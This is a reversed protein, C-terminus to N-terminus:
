QRRQGDARLRDGTGRNEWQGPNQRRHGGGTRGADPLRGDVGHQGRYVGHCFRRFGPEPLHIMGMGPQVDATALTLTGGTITIAGSGLSNAAQAVLEGQQVTIDGAWGTNDLNLTLRGEGRKALTGSAIKGTGGSVFEYDSGAANNVTISAPTVEGSLTVTGAGATNFVLNQGAATDLSGAIGWQAGTTSDSWTLGETGQWIWVDGASTVVLKLTTGTQQLQYILTEDGIYGSWNFIASGADLGSAASILTYEGAEAIGELGNLTLTFTGAGFAGGATMSSNIDLTLTSGTALNLAGATTLRTQAAM